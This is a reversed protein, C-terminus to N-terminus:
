KGMNEWAQLPYGSVSGDNWPGVDSNQCGGRCSCSGGYEAPLNAPDIVEFLVKEYNSGVISIKAVTNEDLMGKVISWVTTFLTPANIILMRGMTEPYYDQAIKSVQQVIKRVSNFTSLQVGKMDLVTCGQSLYRGAKSSCAPLRYRLLKEYERVYATIMRDVNTYQFLEKVDLKGILEFYVPRGVRDTRHYFRPYVRSVDKQEPFEFSSLIREVQFDRRWQECTEFMLKSKEFDFKRARLFRLLLPDSHIAPNYYVPHSELLFEKFEALDLQQDAPVTQLDFRANPSTPPEPLPSAM